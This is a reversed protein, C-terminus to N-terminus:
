FGYKYSFGKPAVKSDLRFGKMACEDSDCLGYYRCKSCPDYDVVADAIDARKVMEQFESETLAEIHEQMSVGNFLNLQVCMSLINFPLVYIDRDLCGLARARPRM